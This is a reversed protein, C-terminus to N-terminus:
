KSFAKLNNICFMGRGGVGRMNRNIGGMMGMGMRNGRDGRDNRDYPSPRNNGMGGAIGGGMGYTNQNLSRRLEAETSRFIEIFRHGITEMHRNLAKECDESTKFQVFAEGSARGSRELHIHVGHEESLELGKFFDGIEKETVRWPLGRLKVVTDNQVINQKRMITEFDEQRASFIEIYRHAMMKKNFEFAKNYDEESACVVFAEGNPRTSNRSYTILHVGNTGDAVEVDKLFDLIDKHTVTWPLGRLKIIWSQENNSENDNDTSM